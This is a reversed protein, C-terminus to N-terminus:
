PRIGRSAEHAEIHGHEVPLLRHGHVGCFPLSIYDGYNWLLQRADMIPRGNQQKNCGYLAPEVLAQKRTDAQLRVVLQRYLQLTTANHSTIRRAAAAAAAAAAAM